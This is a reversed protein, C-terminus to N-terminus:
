ILFSIVHRKVHIAVVNFTRHTMGNAISMVFVQLDLAFVANVEQCVLEIFRTARCKTQDDGWIFFGELVCMILRM